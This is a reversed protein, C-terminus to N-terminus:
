CHPDALCPYADSSLYQNQQQQGREGQAVWHCRFLPIPLTSLPMKEVKVADYGKDNQLGDSLRPKKFIQLKDTTLQGVRRVRKSPVRNKRNKNHKNQPHQKTTKHKNTEWLTGPRGYWNGLIPASPYLSGSDDRHACCLLFFFRTGMEKLVGGEILAMSVRLSGAEQRVRIFFEQRGSQHGPGQM